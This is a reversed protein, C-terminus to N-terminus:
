PTAPDKADFGFLALFEQRANLWDTEWDGDSGIELAGPAYENCVLLVMCVALDYPRNATKCFNFKPNHKRSIFCDEYADYESKGNFMIENDTIIPDEPGEDGQVGLHIGKSTCHDFVKKTNVKVADWESFRFSRTSPFYHTYGM